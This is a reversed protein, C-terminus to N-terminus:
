RDVIKDIEIEHWETPYELYGLDTALGSHLVGVGMRVRGLRQHPESRRTDYETACRITEIM